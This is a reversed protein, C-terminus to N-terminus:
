PYSPHPSAYGHKGPNKKRTDAIERRVPSPVRAEIIREGDSMMVGDMRRNKRMALRTNSESKGARRADPNRDTTIGCRYVTDCGIGPDRPSVSRMVPSRVKRMRVSSLRAHYRRMGIEHTNIMVWWRDEYMKRRTIM